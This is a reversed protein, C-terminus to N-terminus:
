VKALKALLKISVEISNSDPQWVEEATLRNGITESYETPKAPVEIQYYNDKFDTGLRIFAVLRQDFENASRRWSTVRSRRNVRCPYVDKTKYQRIDVNVNKYVARYDKSQLDCVRFSMSQENQRVITNNNNVQEREIDPPLIYNIPIRNENELINVTSIDVTTNKNM